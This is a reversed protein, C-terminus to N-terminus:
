AEGVFANLLRVADTKPLARPDYNLTVHMAGAYTLVGISMNTLPRIPAILACRELTLNGAQLYGEADLLPHGAFPRLVNSLVATSACVSPACTYRVGNQWRGFFAILRNFRAALRGHKIRATERSIGALLEASRAIEAPERDIFAMGVGNACSMQAFEGGRLDVPMTLRIRRPQGSEVQFAHIAVFLDHLLIDNVTAGARRAREQIGSLHRGTITTAEWAPFASLHGTTTSLDPDVLPQARVRFLLRSLSIEGPQKPEERGCPGSMQRRRSLLGPDIARVVADSGGRMRADYASLVDEVFRVAGVADCLAHHVQLLLESRGATTSFFFRFGIERRPDLFPDGGPYVPTDVDAQGFGVHIADNRAPEWALDHTKAKRSGEIVSRALPHRLQAAAVSARFAAEDVEGAFSARLFFSMPTNPRDDAYMYHEFPALGGPSAPDSAATSQGEVTM